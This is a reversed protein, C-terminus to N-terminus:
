RGPPEARPPADTLASEAPPSSTQAPRLAHPFQEIWMLTAGIVSAPMALFNLVPVLTILLSASGFGLALLRREGLIKRQEHFAILHNGMPYDMYQLALMWATFAGWILPAAANIAPIVFLVLLPIARILFYALKKFETLPALAIEQWLPRSPPRPRDPMALDEVREALLGNFPAAILNAILTFTYFAVVLVTVAFLPWLLWRLWDLWTPLYGLMWDLLAAFERTGWWLAGGFLLTNLLLPVIVFSRLRPRSLWRIGRFPYSAGKLFINVM